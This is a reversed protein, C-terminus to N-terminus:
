GPRHSGTVWGGRVSVVGYGFGRVFDEKRDTLNRYRPIYADNPRRGWYYRDKFGPATALVSAGFHDMLNRGVQDSRNALGNPFPQSKSQLLIQASAIASACLFVVRAEYTRGQRSNADIVRVGTVRKTTPDYVLSQVIADTVITVNGTRQA